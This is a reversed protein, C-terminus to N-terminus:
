GDVRKAICDFLQEIMKEAQRAIFRQAIGALRGGVNVEAQWKMLTGGDSADALEMTTELDVSSGIGTGHSIFKAKTLPTVEAVTCHMTFDGQIFSVGARVLAIYERPSQVDLKRLGPVCPSVQHPDMLFAFLTERSASVTFTGEFHM